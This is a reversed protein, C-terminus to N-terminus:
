GSTHEVAHDVHEPSETRHHRAEVPISQITLHGGPQHLQEHLDFLESGGALHQGGLRHLAGIDPAALPEPRRRRPHRRLGAGRHARGDGGQLHGAEEVVQRRHRGGEPGPTEGFGLGSLDGLRRGLTGGGLLLQEVGGLLQRQAFQPLLAAPDLGGGDDVLVLPVPPQAPAPVQPRPRIPVAGNTQGGPEGGVLPGAQQGLDVGASVLHRGLGPRAAPVLAGVGVPGVGEDVQGAGGGAGAPGGARLGHHVHPHVVLGEHPPAGHGPLAALDGAQAGNGTATARRRAPSAMRLTMTVLPTCTVVTAWPPRVMGAWRRVARSHRSGLHMTGWQSM